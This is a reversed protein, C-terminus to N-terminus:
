QSNILIFFSILCIAGELDLTSFDTLGQAINDRYFACLDELSIVRNDEEGAFAVNIFSKLM